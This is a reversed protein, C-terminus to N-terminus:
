FTVKVVFEYPESVFSFTKLWFLEFVHKGVARERIVYIQKVKM